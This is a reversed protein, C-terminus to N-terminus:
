LCFAGRGMVVKQALKAASQMAQQVSQSNIIASTFAATFADGAGVTDVISTPASHMELIQSKDFVVLSGKEAKTYVLYKLALKEYLESVASGEDDFNIDFVKLLLKLEDENIKLIDTFKCSEMIIEPTYFNQRINLDLVKMCTKPLLNLIKYLTDRSKKSRQALTGFCFADCFKIKDSISQTFSIEDWAAPSEIDYSPNGEADLSVKVSGTPLTESTQLLSNSVGERSLTSFVSKALGDNGLASIIFANHGLNACYYAFNLPAGGLVKTTKFVDWVIEGYSIINKRM